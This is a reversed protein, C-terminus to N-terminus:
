RKKRHSLFYEVIFNDLFRLRIDFQEIIHGVWDGRGKVDLLESRESVVEDITMTTRTSIEYTKPKPSKEKLIM